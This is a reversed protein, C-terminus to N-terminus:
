SRRQQLPAALHCASPTTDSTTTALFSCSTLIQRSFKASAIFSLTSAATTRTNSLALPKHCNHHPPSCRPSPWLYGHQMYDGLFLNLTTPAPPLLLLLLRYNLAMYADSASIVLAHLAPFADLSRYRLQIDCFYLSCCVDRM